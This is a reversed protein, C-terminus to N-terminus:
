TPILEATALGQQVEEPPMETEALLQASLMLSTGYVLLAAQTNSDEKHATLINLLV